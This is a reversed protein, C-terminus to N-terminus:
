RRGGTGVRARGANSRAPVEGWITLDGRFGGVALFLERPVLTGIVARNVEYLPRGDNLVRPSESKTIFGTEGAAIEVEHLIDVYQVAPVLLSWPKQDVMARAMATIYGPGLEDDADLFCLWEGTAKMATENRVEAITFSAAISTGASRSRRGAGQQSVVRASFSLLSGSGGLQGAVTGCGIDEGGM